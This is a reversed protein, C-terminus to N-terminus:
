ETWLHEWTVKQSLLACLCIKCTFQAILFAFTKFYSSKNAYFKGDILVAYITKCLFGDPFLNNIM